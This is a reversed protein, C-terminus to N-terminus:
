ITWASRRWYLHLPESSRKSPFHSPSTVVTDATLPSLDLSTGERQIITTPPVLAWLVKVFSSSIAKHLSLNNLQKKKQFEAVLMAKCVSANQNRLLFQVAHNVKKTCASQDTIMNPIPM